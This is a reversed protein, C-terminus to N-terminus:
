RGGAGLERAVRQMDTSVGSSKRRYAWYSHMLCGVILGTALLLLIFLSLTMFLSWFLFRVEVVAVNQIVLLVALGALILSLVLKLHVNNAAIGTM